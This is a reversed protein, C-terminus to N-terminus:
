RVCTKQPRDHVGCGCMDQRAIPNTPLGTSCGRRRSLVVCGLALALLALTGPEPVTVGAWLKGVGGFFGAVGPISYFFFGLSSFSWEEGGGIQCGGPVCSTGFFALTLNGAADFDLQGTNATGADYTIGDWTFNLGTLLGTAQNSGGPIISSSDFTFDGNATTGALPGTTAQVTFSYTIPTASAAPPFLGFWAV